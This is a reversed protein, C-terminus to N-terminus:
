SHMPYEELHSSPRQVDEEKTDKGQRIIPMHIDSCAWEVKALSHPNLNDQKTSKQKSPNTQSTFLPQSFYKEGRKFFTPVNQEGQRAKPKVM